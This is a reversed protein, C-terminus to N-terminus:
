NADFQAELDATDPSIEAAVVLTPSDDKTVEEDQKDDNRDSKDRIVVFAGPKDAENSNSGENSEDLEGLARKTIWHCM